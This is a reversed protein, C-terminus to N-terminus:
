RGAFMADLRMAEPFLVQDEKYIHDHMDGDLASLAHLLARHSTDAWTPATLEDTLVRMQQMAEIAEEHEREMEEISKGAATWAFLTADAAREFARLQPFLIEEKRLHAEVEVTFQDFLM